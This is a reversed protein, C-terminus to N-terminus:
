FSVEEIQGDLMLCYALFIKHKDEKNCKVTIYSDNFCNKFKTSVIDFDYKEQLKLLARMLSADAVEKWAGWGVFQCTKKFKLKFKRRKFM